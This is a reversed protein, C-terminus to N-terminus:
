SPLSSSSSSRTAECPRRRRLRIDDADAAECIESADPSPSSVADGKPVALVGLGFDGQKTMPHLRVERSQPLILCCTLSSWTGCPWNLTLSVIRSCDVDTRQRLHLLHNLSVLSPVGHACSLQLSTCGSCGCPSSSCPCSSPPTCCSTSPTAAGTCVNVSHNCLVLVSRLSNLAASVRPSASPACVKISWSMLCPGLCNEVSPPPICITASSAASSAFSMSSALATAAAAGAAAAGASASAAARLAALSLSLTSCMRRM